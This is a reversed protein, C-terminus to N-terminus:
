HSTPLAPQPELAPPLLEQASDWGHPENSALSKGMPRGKKTDKFHTRPYQHSHRSSEDGPASVGTARQQGEESGM